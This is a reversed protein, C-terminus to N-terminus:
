AADLHVLFVSQPQSPSIIDATGNSGISGRGLKWRDEEKGQDRGGLRCVEGGVTKGTDLSKKQSRACLHPLERSTPAAPLSRQIARQTKRCSYLVASGSHEPLEQLM